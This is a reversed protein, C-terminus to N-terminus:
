CSHRNSTTCRRKNTGADSNVKSIDITNEVLYPTRVGPNKRSPVSTSSTNGTVDYTAM